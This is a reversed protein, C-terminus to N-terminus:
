DVNVGKNLVKRGVLYYIIDYCIYIIIAGYLAVKLAETTFSASSNFLNMVSPYFVGILYIIGITLCSPITYALFGVGISKLIKLNNARYGIIIGLIGALLMFLVEFFVTVICVALFSFVSSNFFLSTQEIGEKIFQWSDKNLFAIALCAIIVISSTILTIVATLFKSLFIENKSVPLTHTLYSEDKYLNRMCRVWVRMFNNVFINIIMAIVTGVCIKGIIMFIFSNEINTVVRTVVAFFIALIYFIILPKYCWKLDYKLLNKLM